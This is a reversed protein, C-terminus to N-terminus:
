GATFPQALLGEPFGCSHPEFFCLSLVFVRQKSQRFIPRQEFETGLLQASMVKTVTEPNASTM